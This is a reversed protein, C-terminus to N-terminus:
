VRVLLKGFNQGGLMGILAGAANELGDVIDERYVLGGDMVWPTALTRWEAFREPRDSVIFGQIRVRMKVVFGLNPGLPPNAEDYQSVMGCMIIRGFANMMPFAAQQVLGGVNEFYVDIGDPCV